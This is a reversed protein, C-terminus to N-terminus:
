NSASTAVHTVALEKVSPRHVVRVRECRSVTINISYFHVFANFHSNLGSLARLIVVRLPRKKTKLFFRANQYSGYSLSQRM